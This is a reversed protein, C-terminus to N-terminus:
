RGNSGERMTELFPGYGGQGFWYNVLNQVGVSTITAGSLGDIKHVAGQASADVRGKVVEIAAAGDPGYIRKGRWLARWSPNDIEGGLGPTEGHQYFGIGRVTDADAELAVFGYLTSWLGKGKVPVVIMSVEGERRILYVKGYKARTKIGALDEQAAITHFSSPDKAARQQDYSEADMDVDFGTGFDVVKAEVSGYAELIAQRDSVGEDILGAVVLLNRKEYLSKNELRRERLGIAASSVVVSCVVCLLLAVLLTKATSDGNM